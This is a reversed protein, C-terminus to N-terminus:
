EGEIGEGFCTTVLGLDCDGVGTVSAPGVGRAAILPECGVGKEAYERVKVEVGPEARREGPPEMMAPYSGSGNWGKGLDNSDSM